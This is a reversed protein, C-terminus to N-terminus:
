RCDYVLVYDPTEGTVERGRIASRVVTGHFDQTLLLNSGGGIVLLPVSRDAHEAWELADEVTDLEVFNYCMATVGFTNYPRLDVNATTKM